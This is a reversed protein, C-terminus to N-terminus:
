TRSVRIVKYEAPWNDESLEIVSNSDSEIKMGKKLLMWLVPFCYESVYVHEIPLELLKDCFLELNEDKRILSELVTLVVISSRPIDFNKSRDINDRIFLKINEDVVDTSSPDERVLEKMKMLEEERKNAM